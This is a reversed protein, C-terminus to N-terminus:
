SLGLTDKDIDIFLPEAGIYSLANCTAIFTLPQSIVLDNQKVGAVILSMHLAATGNATAVAYSAGTYDSMMQEFRDVYKGVSSVYTSDIAEIVYKRENGNFKPEHLSVFGDAKNYYARIFELIQDFTISM